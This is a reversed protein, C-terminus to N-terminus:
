AGDVSRLSMRSAQVAQTYLALTGSAYNGTTAADVAAADGGSSIVDTIKTAGANYSAFAYFLIPLPMATAGVKSRLRQM